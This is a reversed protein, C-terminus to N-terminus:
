GSASDREDISLFTEPMLATAFMVDNIDQHAQWSEDPNQAHPLWASVIEEALSEDHWLPDVAHRLPINGAATAHENTAGAIIPLARLGIALGLERFALRHSTPRTLSHSSRFAEVGNKYADTLEKLLPADGPRDQGLLRCLRCADFLLGGVGLPDNTTWDRHECLTFMSKVADALERASADISLKSLAYQAERFTIYADLADHQGMAPVLPRSLDTSMKWYIGAIEGSRSRRVFGKLAADGLEAAWRAYVSRGTMFGARCLAHMWKTLYHFYQGDREWELREDIPEGARREKLPKGIRLGGSTPHKRATEDDFGSIWGRRVDDARYRGLVHHVQDILDTACRRYIQDDTREFLELFNCVAFADTWLYRQQDHAAPHLGTRRAFELMLRAAIASADESFM